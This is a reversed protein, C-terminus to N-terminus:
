QGGSLKKITEDKNQSGRTTGFEFNYINDLYGLFRGLVLTFIGKVYENIQPDKWVIWVLAMIIVVALLFMLDGRHNRVGAKIFEADRNRASSRDEIELKFGALEQEKQAIVFDHLESERDAEIQALKVRGEDTNVLDDLKVGLKQEIVDQGKAMVANGLLNLGSAFLSALIPAM